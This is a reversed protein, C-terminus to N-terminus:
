EEETLAEYMDCVALQVNTLQSAIDKIYEDKDYQKLHYSYMKIEEGEFTKTILQIDIAIWVSYKDLKMPDPKVSSEVIGYDKM